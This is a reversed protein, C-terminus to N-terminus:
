MPAAAAPSRRSGSPSTRRAPTSSTTPAWGKARLRRASPNPESVIVRAGLRKTLNLHLLGMIGAGVVVVNDAREVRAKRVSRIVCGLPETLCMEEFARPTPPGTSSTTTWCSTSRCAPPDPSTRRASAVQPRQRLHQRARPPVVRLLRLADAGLGAGTDGIKADTYVQKGIAALEGSVEHGGAMPYYPEDGSYIRQEWTCLACARVKVLAQRPGPEPIPVEDIRIQRPGVFVARKYTATM